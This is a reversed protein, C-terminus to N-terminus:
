LWNAASVQACSCASAIYGTIYLSNAWEAFKSSVRKLRILTPHMQPPDLCDGNYAYKFLSIMMGRILSLRIKMSIRM